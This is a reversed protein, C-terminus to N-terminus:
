KAGALQNFQLHHPCAIKLMRDPRDHAGIQRSIRTKRKPINTHVICVFRPKFGSLFAHHNWFAKGVERIYSIMCASGTFQQIIEKESDTTAKLEIFIIVKKHNSEAIILYDTRKCEGKLGNFISDPAKFSDAKIVVAQEPIGLIDM